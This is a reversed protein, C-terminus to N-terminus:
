LANLAKRIGANIAKLYEDRTIKIECRDALYGWSNMDIHTYYNSLSVSEFEARKDNCPDIKVVKCYIWFHTRPRNKDFWTKYKWYTGEM